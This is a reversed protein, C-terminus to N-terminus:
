ATQEDDYWARQEAQQELWTKFLPAPYAAAYQEDTLQYASVNAGNIGAVNEGSVIRGSERGEQWSHRADRYQEVSARHLCDKRCSVMGRSCPM